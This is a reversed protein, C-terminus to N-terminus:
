KAENKHEWFCSESKRGPKCHTLTCTRSFVESIVPFEDNDM